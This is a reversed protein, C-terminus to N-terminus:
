RPHVNSPTDGGFTDAMAKRLVAGGEEEFEEFGVAVYGAYAQPYDWYATADVKAHLAAALRQAQRLAELSADSGDVGVLIRQYPEGSSM